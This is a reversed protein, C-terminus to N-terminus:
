RKVMRQQITENKNTVTVLFLGSSLDAINLM